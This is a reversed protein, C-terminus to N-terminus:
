YEDSCVCPLTPYLRDLRAAAAPDHVHALGEAALAALSRYGTLWQVLRGAELTLQPAACAPLGDLGFVGNNGAVVPDTVRLAFGAPGGTVAPLLAPLCAAGMAGWPKVETRAGPLAPLHDPPLKLTLGRGAALAAMGEALAQWGGPTLAACEEGYLGHEDTFYICYGEPAGGQGPLVACRGGGALYDGYKFVFDPWSRSVPGSYGAAYACYCRSL